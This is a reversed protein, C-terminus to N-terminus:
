GSTRRRSLMYAICTDLDRDQGMLTPLDNIPLCKLIAIKERSCRVMKLGIPWRIFKEIVTVEKTTPDEIEVRRNSETKKPGYKRHWNKSYYEWDTTIDSRAHYTRGDPTVLTYTRTTTTSM